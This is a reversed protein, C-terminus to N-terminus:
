KLHRLIDDKLTDIKNEVQEMSVFVKGEVVTALIGEVIGDLRPFLDFPKLWYIEKADYKLYFHLIGTDGTFVGQNFSLEGNSKMIRYVCLTGIPPQEKKFDVEILIM